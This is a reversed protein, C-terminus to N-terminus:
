SKALRRIGYRSTLKLLESAKPPSPWLQLLHGEPLEGHREIERRERNRAHVRLRYNGPAQSPPIILIGGEGEGWLEMQPNTWIVPTEVVDEWAELDCEPASAWREVTIAVWGSHLGTTIAIGNTEVM